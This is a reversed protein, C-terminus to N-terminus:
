SRVRERTSSNPPRSSVKVARRSVQSHFPLSQRATGVAAGGVARTSATSSWWVALSPVRKNPPLSRVCSRPSLWRNAASNTALELGNPM